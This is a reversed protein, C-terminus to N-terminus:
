TGDKLAKKIGNLSKVGKKFSNLVFVMGDTSKIFNLHKKNVKSCDLTYVKKSNKIIDYFCNDDVIRRKIRFFIAKREEYEDWLPDEYRSFHRNLDAEISLTDNL